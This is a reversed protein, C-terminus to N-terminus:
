SAIGAFCRTLDDLPSVPSVETLWTESLWGYPTTSPAACSRGELRLCDNGACPSAVIISEAESVLATLLHVMFNADLNTRM